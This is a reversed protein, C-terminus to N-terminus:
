APVQVVPMVEDAPVPVLNVPPAIRRLVPHPGLLADIVLLRHVIEDVPEVTRRWSAPRLAPPLVLSQRCADTEAAPRPRRRVAQLGPPLRDPWVNHRM